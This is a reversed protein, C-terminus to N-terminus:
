LEGQLYSCVVALVDEYLYRDLAAKARIERLQVTEAVLVHYMDEPYFVLAFDTAGAPLMARKIVEALNNHDSWTCGLTIANYNVILRVCSTSSTQHDQRLFKLELSLGQANYTVTCLDNAKHWLSFYGTSDTLGTPVRQRCVGSGPFRWEGVAVVSHQDREERTVTQTTTANLNPGFFDEMTWKWVCLAQYARYRWVLHPSLLHVADSRLALPGNEAVELSYTM